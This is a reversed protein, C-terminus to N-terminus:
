VVKKKLGRPRQCNRLRAVKEVTSLGVGLMVAIRSYILNPCTRIVNEIQTFIRERELKQEPSKRGCKM